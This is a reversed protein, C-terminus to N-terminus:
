GVSFYGRKLCENSGCMRFIVSVSLVYEYCVSLYDPPYDPYLIIQSRNQTELTVLVWAVESYM